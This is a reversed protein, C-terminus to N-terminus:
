FSLNIGANFRDDDGFFSNVFWKFRSKKSFKGKMSVYNVHGYTYFNDNLESRLGNEENSYVHGLQVKVNGKYQNLFFNFPDFGAGINYNGVSRDLNYLYESTITLIDEGFFKLDQELTGQFYSEEMFKEFKVEGTLDELLRTSIEIEFYNLTRNRSFLDPNELDDISGVVIEYVSRENKSSKEYRVGDVWGSSDFGTISVKNKVTPIAGVQLKSGSFKKELYLRRAFLRPAELNTDQDKLDKVTSWDSTYSEGSSVLGVLSLDESFDFILGLRVRTQYRNKLIEDRNNESTDYRLDISTDVNVRDKSYVQNTIM